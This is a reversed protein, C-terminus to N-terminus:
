SDGARHGRSNEIEVVVVVVAAVAAVAVAVVDVVIEDVEDEAVAASHVILERFRDAEEVEDRM